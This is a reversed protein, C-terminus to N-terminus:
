SISALTKSSVAEVQIDVPLSTVEAHFLSVEQGSVEVFIEEQRVLKFQTVYEASALTPPWPTM